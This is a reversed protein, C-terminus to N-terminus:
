SRGEGTLRFFLYGNWHAGTVAKAVASLSRYVQGEYEFGKALVAVEIRRGRYERSITSGPMLLREGGAVKTRVTRGDAGPSVKPPTPIRLRIDADRALETARQKARESLGGEALSQLRWAVRKRLFDKNGSRSPEGFAELYKARLQASTMRGLAAIQIAMSM